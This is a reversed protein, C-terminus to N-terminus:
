ICCYLINVLLIIYYSIINQCLIDVVVPCTNTYSLSIILFTFRSTINSQFSSVSTLIATVLMLFLPATWREHWILTHFWVLLHYVLGLGWFFVHLMVTSCSSITTFVAHIEYKGICIRVNGICICVNVLVYVYM